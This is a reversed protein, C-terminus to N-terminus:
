VSDRSVGRKKRGELICISPIAIATGAICLGACVVVATRVPLHDFLLGGCVGSLFYSITTTTFALSQALPADESSVAGTTFPVIASAYLAYSPGQLLAAVLILAKGSAAVLVLQKVVFFVIAVILLIFPRTKRFLRSYFIMFPIESLAGISVIVSYYNLDGGANYVINVLFSLCVRYGTCTIIISLLIFAFLRNQALFGGIPLADHKKVAAPTEPGGADLSRVGRAFSCHMACSCFVIAAGIVPLIRSSFRNLMPGVLLSMCVFAFSGCGRAVGYDIHIGRNICEAYIDLDINNVTYCFAIQIVFAVSFLLCVRNLAFMTFYCVLQIALAIYAVTISRARGRSVMSPLMPGTLSGLANGCALIIGLGTNTYGVSQM